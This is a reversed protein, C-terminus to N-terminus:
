PITVSVVSLDHPALCAFAHRKDRAAEAHFSPRRRTLAWDKPLPIDLQRGVPRGEARRTDSTM